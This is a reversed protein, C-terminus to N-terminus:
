ACESVLVRRVGVSRFRGECVDVCGGLKTLDVEDSGEGGSYSEGLVGDDDNGDGAGVSFGFGVIMDGFEEESILCCRLHKM